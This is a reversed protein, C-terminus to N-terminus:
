RHETEAVNRHSLGWKGQPSGLELKARWSGNEWCPQPAPGVRQGLMKGGWSILKSWPSPVGPIRVASVLGTPCTASEWRPPLVSRGSWAAVPRAVRLWMLSPTSAATRGSFAILSSKIFDQPYAAVSFSDAAEPARLWHRLRRPRLWSTPPLNLAAVRTQLRPCGLGPQSRSLQVPKPLLCCPMARCLERLRGWREHGLPLWTSIKWSSLKFYTM